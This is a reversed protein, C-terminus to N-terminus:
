DPHYFNEIRSRVEDVDHALEATNMLGAAVRELTIIGGRKGKFYGLVHELWEVALQPSKRPDGGKWDQFHSSEWWYKSSGDDANTEASYLFMSCHATVLSRGGALRHVCHDDKGAYRQFLDTGRLDLSSALIISLVEVRQPDRQYEDFSALFTGTEYCSAVRFVNPSHKRSGAIGSLMQQYARAVERSDGVFFVVKAIPNM